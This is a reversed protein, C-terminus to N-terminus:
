LTPSCGGRSHTWKARSASSFDFYWARSFLSGGSFRIHRPYLQSVALLAFGLKWFSFRWLNHVARISPACAWQLSWCCCLAWEELNGCTFCVMGHSPIMFAELRFLEESNRFNKADLTNPKVIQASSKHITRLCLVCRETWRFLSM